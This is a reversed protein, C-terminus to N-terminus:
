DLENFCKEIHNFLIKFNEFSEQPFNNMSSEDILHDKKLKIFSYDVIRRRDRDLIGLDQLDKDKFYMEMVFLSFQPDENFYSERDECIPICTVGIKDKKKFRVIESHQNFLKKLEGKAPSGNFNNLGQYDADFLALVKGKYHQTFYNLQKQVENAGGSDFPENAWKVCFPIVLGPNLKEWACTIIQKDSKGEVLLLPKEQDAMPIFVPEPNKYGYFKPLEAQVINGRLRDLIIIKEESINKNQIIFPSHTAIIFQTDIVNDNNTFIHRLFDIYREQWYPHLSIEPEDVLIIGGSLSKIDKLLYGARFVIQKEGSSLSNIDIENGLSDKFYVKKRGDQNKIGEFTKGDIMYNFANKFRSIREEHRRIEVLKGVNQRIWSGADSDDLSQIDVLLQSIETSIDQNSKEKPNKVTDIDRSTTSFINTNSFNIEVTSYLFKFLNRFDDRNAFSSSQDVFIEEKSNFIKLLNWGSNKNDSNSLVEISLIKDFQNNIKKLVDIEIPSLYFSLKIDYELFRLTPNSLFDSIENLITTKGSGNSGGILIFNSFNENKSFDLFCNGLIPHNKTEFKLIKM